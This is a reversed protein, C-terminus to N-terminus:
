DPVADIALGLVEGLPVLPWPNPMPNRRPVARRALTPVFRPPM